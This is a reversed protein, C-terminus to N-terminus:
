TLGAAISNEGTAASVQGAVSVLTSTTEANLSLNDTNITSDAVTATTKNEISQKVASGAAGINVNNGSSVDAAM